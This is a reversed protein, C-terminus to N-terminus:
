VQSHMRELRADVAADRSQQETEYHAFDPMYLGEVSGEPFRDLLADWHVAFADLRDLLKAARKPARAEYRTLGRSVANWVRESGFFLFSGIVCFATLVFPFVILAPYLMALAILVLTALVRPTVFRVIAPVQVAPFTIKPMAKRKATKKVPAAKVSASVVPTPEQPIDGTPVSTFKAPRVKTEVDKVLQLTAEKEFAQAVVERHDEVSKPAFEDEFNSLISKIARMTVVDNEGSPKGELM